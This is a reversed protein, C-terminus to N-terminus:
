LEEFLEKFAAEPEAVSRECCRLGLAFMSELSLVFEDNYRHLLKAVGCQGFERMLCPFTKGISYIM